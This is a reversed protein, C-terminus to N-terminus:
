NNAFQKPNILMKASSPELVSYGPASELTIIVSYAQQNFSARPDALTKILITAYGSPGVYAPSVLAVYDVGPIATGSVSFKVYTGTLGGLGSTAQSKMALVFSGTQGRTVNGTSHITVMQLGPNSSGDTTVAHNPGGDLRAGAQASLALAFVLGSLIATFRINRNKM